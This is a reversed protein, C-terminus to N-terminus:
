NNRHCLTLADYQPALPGPNLKRSKCMNHKHKSKQKTTTTNKVKTNIFVNITMCNRLDRQLPSENLHSLCYHLTYPRHYTDIYLGLM